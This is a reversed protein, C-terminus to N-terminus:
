QKNDIDTDQNIVPRSEMTYTINEMFGALNTVFSEDELLIYIDEAQRGWSAEKSNDWMIFAALLVAAIVFRLWFTSVSLPPSEQGEEMAQLPNIENHFKSKGYLFEERSNMVLRNNQHESRIMKVLQLKKDSSINGM